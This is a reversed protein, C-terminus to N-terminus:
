LEEKSVFHIKQRPSIGAIPSKFNLEIAPSGPSSTTIRFIAFSGDAFLVRMVGVKVSSVTGDHSLRAWFREADRVPDRSHIVRVRGSGKGGFNGM